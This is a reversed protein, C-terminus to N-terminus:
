SGIYSITSDIMNILPSDAGLRYSNVLELTRTKDASTIFGKKFLSVIALLVRYRVHLRKINPAIQLLIELDGSEPYLNILSAITIVLAENPNEKQFEFIDQKSIHEKFAYEAMENAKADKLRTREGWDRVSIALYENALKVLGSIKEDINRESSQAAKELTPEQDTNKSYLAHTILGQKSDLAALQIETSRFKIDLQQLAEQDASVFAKSLVLRTFLYGFLFGLVFYCSILGFSFSLASSHNPSNLGNAMLMAISKIYPPLKTLNVLGLGVIIKTLWDSIETLNTNVQIRYDRNEENQAATSNVNGQLIKPIGFLFGIVAGVVICALMWLVSIAGANLSSAYLIILLIGFLIFALFFIIIPFLSKKNKLANEEAM